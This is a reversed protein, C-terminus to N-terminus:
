FKIAVFPFTIIDMPYKNQSRNPFTSPGRFEALPQETYDEDTEPLLRPGVHVNLGGPGETFARVEM